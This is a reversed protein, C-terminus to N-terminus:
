DKGEKVKFNAANFGVTPPFGALFFVKEGDSTFAFHDVDYCDGAKPLNEMSVLDPFCVPKQQRWKRRKVCQVTM